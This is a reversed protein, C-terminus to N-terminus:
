PEGELKDLQESTLPRMKLRPDPENRAREFDPEIRRSLAQLEDFSITPDVKEGVNFLLRLYAQRAVEDEIPAGALEDPKM